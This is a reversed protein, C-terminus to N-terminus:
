ATDQLHRGCLCPPPSPRVHPQEGVGGELRGREELGEEAEEGAVEHGHEEGTDCCGGSWLDLATTPM